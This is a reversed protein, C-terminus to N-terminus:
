FHFIELDFFTYKKVKRLWEIFEPDNQRMQEKLEFHEFMAMLPENAYISKASPPVLQRRDGGLLVHKGGFEKENECFKRLKQDVCELVKQDLMSIEDIIILKANKIAHPLEKQMVAQATTTCFISLGFAFHVTKCKPIASAAIGTSACIVM